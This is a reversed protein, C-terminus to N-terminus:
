AHARRGRWTQQAPRGVFQRLLAFAPTCGLVILGAAHYGLGLIALSSWAGFVSLRTAVFSLSLVIALDVLAAAARHALPSALLGSADFRSRAVGSEDRRRDGHPPMAARDDAYRSAFGIAEAQGRLLPERRRDAISFERCFDNVAADPELGILQAYDRIYARAFVGAPWRSVDNREMAAWLSVSVKTHAAISELSVGRQERAEKVRPGFGHREPM